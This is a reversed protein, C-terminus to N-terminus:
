EGERTETKPKPKATTKPKPKAVTPIRAHGAKILDDAIATPVDKQIGLGYSFGAGSVPVLVEITKKSM